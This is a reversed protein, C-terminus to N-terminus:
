SLLLDRVGEIMNILMQGNENSIRTKRNEIQNNKEIENRIELIIENLAVVTQDIKGRKFHRISKDVGSQIDQKLDKDILLGNTIEKIASLMSPIDLAEDGGLTIDPTGNGDVDLSLPSAEGDQRIELEAISTPNIPVNEYSVVEQAYDSGIQKNIYFSFVGGGTAHLKITYTGGGELNLYKGEGLQLYYSNPVNEEILQIDSTPDPNPVLGTHNGFEDYVDITVPSHISLQFNPNSTAPKTSYIYNIQAVTGTLLTKLLDRVSEAELIDSHDRNRRFGIGGVNISKNHEPLNVYYTEADMAAASPIVVTKDGDRTFLPQPDLVKQNTCVSFDANCVQKTQEEYRIGRLTDLGWGVIQIIHVGLPAVWHDLTSHLARANMLFDNQLVNPEDVNTPTPETRAGGEGTLFAELMSLNTITNGYVSRLYTTVSVNSDFEIMPQTGVNVRAFYEDFPLLNYAGQMNEALERSTEFSPLWGKLVGREGGHLLGMIASPTGLQPTAVMIFTDVLDSEGRTALESIILKGLLGGNSHGVITVKGTPSNHAFNEIESVLDYRSGDPLRAGQAVVDRIDDRWDYPLAKWERIRGEAVLKDMAAGFTKYINFGFAEDIIDNTYISSDISQSANDMYLARVDDNSNPEWLKNEFLQQRYLRSGLLGPLFVVSSRGAEFTFEGDNPFRASLTGDTAEFHYTYSGTQFTSTAIFVEGNGMDGDSSTGAGSIDTTLSITESSTGDSVVLSIEHPPDNDEDTYLVKFIFETSTTIGKNPHVGPSDSDTAYGEGEVTSLLPPHEVSISDNLYQFTLTSYNTPAVGSTGGSAFWEMIATNDYAPVLPSLEAVIATYLHPTTSARYLEAVPGLYKGFQVNGAPWSQFNYGYNVDKVPAGGDVAGFTGRILGVFAKTNAVRVPWSFNFVWYSQYTSSFTSQLVTGGEYIPTTTSKIWSLSHLDEAHTTHAPVLAFFVISIIIATLHHMGVGRKVM